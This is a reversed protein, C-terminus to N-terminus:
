PTLHRSLYSEKKGSNDNSIYLSELSCIQKGLAKVKPWMQLYPCFISDLLTINCVLVCTSM